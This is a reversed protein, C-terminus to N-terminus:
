DKINYTKRGIVILRSVDKPQIITEAQLGEGEQETRQWVDAPVFLKYITLFKHRVV